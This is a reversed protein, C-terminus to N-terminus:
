SLKREHFDAFCYLIAAPRGIIFVTADIGTNASLSGGSVLLGLLIFLDVNAIFSLIETFSSEAKLLIKNGM